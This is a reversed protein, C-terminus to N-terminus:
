RLLRAMVVVGDVGVADAAAVSTGSQRGASVSNTTSLRTVPRAYGSTTVPTACDTNGACALPLRMTRSPLVTPEANIPWGNASGPWKQLRGDAVPGM